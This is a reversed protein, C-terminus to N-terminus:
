LRFGGKKGTTATTTTTSTKTNNGTRFGGTKGTTQTAPQTATQASSSSTKTTDSVTVGEGSAFSKLFEDYSPPEQLNEIGAMKKKNYDQLIAAYAANARKLLNDRVSDSVNRGGVHFKMKAKATEEAVKIRGQIEQEKLQSRLEFTQREADAKIKARREEDAMANRRKRAEDELALERRYKEDALQFKYEAEKTGISRLDDTAKVARNFADLYARDDYKQVGGTAGSGGGIGWGIPQVLSTLLNGFANYRAMKVSDTRAQEAEQKRFNLMDQFATNRENYAIESPKKPGSRVEAKGFIRDNIERLQDTTYLKSLDLTSPM